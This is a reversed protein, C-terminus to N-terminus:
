CLFALCDIRIEAMDGGATDLSITSVGFIREILGASEDVNTIRELPM